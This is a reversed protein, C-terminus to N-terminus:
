LPTQRHGFVILAVALFTCLETSFTCLETSFTCLETPLLISKEEIGGLFLAM